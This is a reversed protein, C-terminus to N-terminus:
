EECLKEILNKYASDPTDGLGFPKNYHIWFECCECDSSNWGDPLDYEYLNFAVWKGGSYTGGYRDKLITCPYPDRKMEEKQRKHFEELWKEDM